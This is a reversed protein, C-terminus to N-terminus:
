ATQNIANAVRQLTRASREIFGEQKALDYDVYYDYPGPREGAAVSALYRDSMARLADLESQALDPHGAQWAPDDLPIDNRDGWANEITFNPYPGAAKLAGLVGNWDIVGDGIARIQREYVGDRPFLVVDRMHTKKVYPAVRRTAMVPDEGRVVVNALDLTVGLIDSGVAEIMRVIEYTTIEEHTELALAAGSDRLVPGLKAIFKRTAELQDDWDVDTRFRDIAHLGWETRQYNATDVWLATCGINTAAEIMRTMGLLYDGDGIARVEPAEATNFPNVKGLGMELYLGLNKAHRSIEALKGADLDPVYDLITRFFVGSRGLDKARELLGFPGLEKARPFKRGDIGIRLANSDM